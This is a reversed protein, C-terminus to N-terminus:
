EAEIVKFISSKRSQKALKQVYLTSLKPTEYEEYSITKQLTNSMIVTKENSHLSYDGHGM